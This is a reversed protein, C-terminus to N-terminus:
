RREQIHAIHAAADRLLRVVHGDDLAYFVRRGDRRVRVIHATRLLRLQHSTASESLGTAAALDHVCREGHSLVDLLGLRSPDGLLKFVAAMGGVNTSVATRVHIKPLRSMGVYAYILMQEYTLPPGRPQCTGM